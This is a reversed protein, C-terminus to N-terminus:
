RRSTLKLRPSTSNRAPSLWAEDCRSSTSSPSTATSVPVLVGPPLMGIATSPAPETSPSIAKSSPAGREAVQVAILSTCAAPRALRPRSRSISSCGLTAALSITSSAWCM